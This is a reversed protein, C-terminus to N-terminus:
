SGLIRLGDRLDLWDHILIVEFNVPLTEGIVERLEFFDARWDVEAGVHSCCLHAFSHNSIDIAYGSPVFEFLHFRKDCLGHLLASESQGSGENIRWSVIRFGFFQDFEGFDGRLVSADVRAMHAALALTLHSGYFLREADAAFGM